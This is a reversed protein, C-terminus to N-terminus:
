SQMTHKCSHRSSLARAPYDISLALPYYAWVYQYNNISFSLTFKSKCNAIGHKYCGKVMGHLM